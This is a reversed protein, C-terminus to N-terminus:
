PPIRARQKRRQGTQWRGTTMRLQGMAARGTMAYVPVHPIWQGKYRGMRIYHSDECYSCASSCIARKKRYIVRQPLMMFSRLRDVLSLVTPGKVSSMLLLQRAEPCMTFTPCGLGTKCIIPQGASRARWSPPRKGADHPVCGELGKTRRGSTMGPLRGGMDSLGM